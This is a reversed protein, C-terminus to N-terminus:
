RTALKFLVVLLIMSNAQHLCLQLKPNIIMIILSLCMKILIPVMVILM